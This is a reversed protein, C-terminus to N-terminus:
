VHKDKRLGEAILALKLRLVALHALIILRGNNM